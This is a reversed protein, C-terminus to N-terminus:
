RITNEDDHILQDLMRNYRSQEFLEAFLKKRRQGTAKEIMGLIRFYRAIGKQYHQKMM